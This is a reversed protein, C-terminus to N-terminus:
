KEKSRFRYFDYGSKDAFQPVKLMKALVAKHEDHAEINRCCSCGESYMYDAVARRIAAIEERNM